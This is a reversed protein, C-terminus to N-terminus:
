LASGPRLPHIITGVPPLTNIRFIWGDPFFGHKVGKLTIPNHNHYYPFLINKFTLSTPPPYQRHYRIGLLLAIFNFLRIDLIWSLSSSEALGNRIDKRNVTTVNHTRSCYEIAHSVQSIAHWFDNTLIKYLWSSTTRWLTTMCTSKNEFLALRSTVLPYSNDSNSRVMSISLHISCEM